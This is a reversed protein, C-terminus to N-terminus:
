PKRNRELYEAFAAQLQTLEAQQQALRQALEAIVTEPPTQEGSSWRRCSRMNVQLAAAMEQQWRVGWLARGARRILTAADLMMAELLL